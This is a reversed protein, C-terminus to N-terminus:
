SNIHFTICHWVSIDEVNQLEIKGLREDISKIYERNQMIGEKQIHNLSASIIPTTLDPKDKFDINEFDEVVM